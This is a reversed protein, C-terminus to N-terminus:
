IDAHFLNDEDQKSFKRFLDDLFMTREDYSDGASDSFGGCGIEYVIKEPRKMPIPYVHRWVIIIALETDGHGYELGFGWVLVRKKPYPYEDFADKHKESLGIRSVEDEFVPDIMRSLHIETDVYCRRIDGNKQIYRFVMDSRKRYETIIYFLFQFERFCCLPHDIVFIISEERGTDLIKGPLLSDAITDLVLVPVNERLIDMSFQLIKGKREYFLILGIFHVIREYPFELYVVDKRNESESGTETHIDLPYLFPKGIDM